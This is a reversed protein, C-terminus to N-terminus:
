EHACELAHDIKLINTLLAYHTEIFKVLKGITVFLGGGIIEAAVFQGLSLQGIEFLWAGGLLLLLPGIVQLAMLFFIQRRLIAFHDARARLWADATAQHGEAVEHWIAYKMASENVASQLGKGGLLYVGWLGVWILITLVIFFPHYAMLVLTGVILALIVEFGDICWKGLTKPIALLEFYMVRESPLRQPFLPTYREVLQREIHELLLLQGYRCVQYAILAVGLITSLTFLSLQLGAFALHSVVMQVVLPTVLGLLAVGIGYLAFSRWEIQRWGLYTNLLRLVTPRDHRM